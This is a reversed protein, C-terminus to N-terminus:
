HNTKLNKILNYNKQLNEDDKILSTIMDVQTVHPNQAHLFKGMTTHYWFFEPWHQNLGWSGLKGKVLFVTESLSIDLVIQIQALIISSDNDFASM